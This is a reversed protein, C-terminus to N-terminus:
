SGSPSIVHIQCLPGPARALRADLTVLTTDLAEALAVYWADYVSVSDRLGWVRLQFPEFPYETIALEGSQVLAARGKPAPLSASLVLRRLASAVEPRLIAPAHLEEDGAVVLRCHRGLEDPLILAAVLISADIVSM